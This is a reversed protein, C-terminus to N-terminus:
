SYIIQSIKKWRWSPTKFNWCVFSHKHTPDQKGKVRNFIWTGISQNGMKVRAFIFWLQLNLTNARSFKGLECLLRDVAFFRQRESTSHFESPFVSYNFDPTRFISFDSQMKWLKWFQNKCTAHQVRGHFLHNEFKRRKYKM